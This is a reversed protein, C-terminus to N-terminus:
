YHNQFQINKYCKFKSRPIKFIISLYNLTKKDFHKIEVVTNKITKVDYLSFLLIEDKEIGRTFVRELILHKDGILDLKNTDIDWFLYPSLKTIEKNKM